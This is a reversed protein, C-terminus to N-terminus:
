ASRVSIEVDNFQTSVYKGSNRIRNLYDPSGDSNDAVVLAGPRLYPEALSLVPLYHPKAGDLFLLDITSPLDRALTQLADGERFDVLDALGARSLNERARIVKSPEFESTILRGGGLDRLM